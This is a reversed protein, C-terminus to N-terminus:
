AAPKYAPAPAYAKPAPEPPYQAEGEYSVDAVYGGDGNVNWSVKQLRGDPLHVFYSGSAAYGDRNESQGFNAKSYDDQVGYTYTYKPPEDPYTPAPAWTAPPSAPLASTVAMFAALAFIVKISTHTTTGLAASLSGM